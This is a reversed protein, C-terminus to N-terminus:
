TVADRGELHSLWWLMPPCDLHVCHWAFIAVHFQNCIYWPARWEKQNKMCQRVPEVTMGRNGLAVKVGDMRGLKLRGQVRGGSVEAMMVRRAMRYEDKREM